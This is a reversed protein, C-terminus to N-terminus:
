CIDVPAGTWNRNPAQTFSVRRQGRICKPCSCQEGTGWRAVASSDSGQSEGGLPQVQLHHCGAAEVLLERPNRPESFPLRHKCSGSVLIFAGKQPTHTSGCLHLPVSRGRGADSGM